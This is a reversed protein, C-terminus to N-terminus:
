RALAERLEGLVALAILGLFGVVILFIISVIATILVMLCMSLWSSDFRVYVFFGCAWHCVCAHAIEICVLTLGKSFLSTWSYEDLCYFRMVFGGGIITIAICISFCITFLQANTDDLGAPALGTFAQWLRSFFGGVDRVTMSCWNGFQGLNCSISNAIQGDHWIFISWFLCFGIILLFATRLIKRWRFVIHVGIRALLGVLAMMLKYAAKRFFLEFIIISLIAVLIYPWM